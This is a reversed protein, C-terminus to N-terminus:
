AGPQSEVDSPGIITLTHASERCVTEVIIRLADTGLSSMWTALPYVRENRVGNPSMSWWISNHRDVITQNKKKLASRAKGNLAQLAATIESATAEVRKVLTQDVEPMVDRWPKILEDVGQVEPLIDGALTASITKEVHEWPNLYLSPDQEGKILNRETRKDLLVAHHRVIPAPQVVGVATYLDVIQAHYAIEAAGLVAAVTPFISDQVLPRSLASTSFREPNTKALAQLEEITYDRGGAEYTDGNPKLKHRGNEDHIHFLLDPTSVQLHYGRQELALGCNSVISALAGPDALDKQVIAAHMGSEIILSARVVLVGWEQLIPEIVSIFADAWSTGTTYVNTLRERVDDAYQGTLKSLAETVIKIEEESFSRQSVPLRDNNGDWHTVTEISPGDALFSTTSAEAADHDNDELWFIPVTPVHTDKAVEQAYQVATRIKLLTYLPGGLFGIQQGTTVVVSDAASLAELNATQADSLTMSLMSDNILSVIRQRPPGSQAREAAFESTVSRRPFIESREALVDHFLKSGSLTLLDISKM